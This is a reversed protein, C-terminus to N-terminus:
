FETYVGYRVKEDITLEMGNLFQLPKRVDWTDKLLAIRYQQTDKLFCPNNECFFMALKPMANVVKVIASMDKIFNYRLDLAQM